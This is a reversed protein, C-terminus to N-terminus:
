GVRNKSDFHQKYTEFGDTGCTKKRIAIRVNWM